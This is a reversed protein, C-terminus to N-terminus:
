QKLDEISEPKLKRPSSLNDLIYRADDAFESEPFERLLRGLKQSAARKDNHLDLNVQAGLFLADDVRDSSPFDSVILDFMDIKDQGDPLAVARAFVQDVSLGGGPAFEGFTEVGRLERAEALWAALLEEQFGPMIDLVVKDRAEAYTMPRAEKRGIIDIVHWRGDIEVPPNVGDALDYAITSFAMSNTIHPVFSGRNFWGIEGGLARTQANVSYEVAVYPFRDDYTGRMLREYAKTAQERTLCEIHQAKVAGLQRYEDRHQDFYERLQAEDPRADKFIGMNTMASILTMRRQSILTRAVERDNYLENEIAGQVLLAENVMDKLLLQRGTDGKYRSKVNRPLEDYRLDLDQVTIEISGVRAIVDSADMATDGFVPQWTFKDQSGGQCSALALVLALVAAARFLVAM